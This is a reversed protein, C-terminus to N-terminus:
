FPIRPILAFIEGLNFHSLRRLKQLGEFRAFATGVVHPNHYKARIIGAYGMDWMRDDM